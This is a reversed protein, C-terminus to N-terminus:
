FKEEFTASAVALTPTYITSRMLLAVATQRRSQAQLSCSSSLDRHLMTTGAIANANSPGAHLGCAVLYGKFSLHLMVVSIEMGSIMDAIYTITDLEVFVHFQHSCLTM